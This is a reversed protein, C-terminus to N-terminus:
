SHVIGNWANYIVSNEQYNIDTKPIDGDLEWIMVGGLQNLKAWNGKYYASQGDDFSMFWNQNKDYAWPTKALSGLGASGSLIPKVYILNNRNFNFSNWCYSNNVICKYDTTGGSNSEGAPQDNSLTLYLGKNDDTVPVATKEIRAYAPLGLVLKNSPVGAKKYADIADSVNYHNLVDNAYHHETQIESLFDTINDPPLQSVDFQGHMDYTMVNFYDLASAVIKWDGSNSIFSSVSDPGAFVASTLKYFRPNNAPQIIDLKTRIATLLAQYGLARAPTLQMNESTGPQIANWEYDIDIGNFGITLMTNVLNDALQQILVPNNSDFIKALDYSPYNNSAADGWGGFSFILNLYPYQQKLTDFAPIYSQDHNIDSFSVDATTNNIKGVDYYITNMNEFPIQNPMLGNQPSSQYHYNAWNTFYAGVIKGAGPDQCTNEQCQKELPLAIQTGDSLSVSVNFPPRYYVPVGNVSTQEHALPIQTLNVFGNAPVITFTGKQYPSETSIIYQYDFQSMKVPVVPIAPHYISGNLQSTDLTNYNTDFQLQTIIIDNSTHNYITLTNSWPSVAQNFNSNSYTLGNDNETAGALNAVLISLAIVLILNLKKIM